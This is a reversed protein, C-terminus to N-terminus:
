KLVAVRDYFMRSIGFYHNIIDVACVEGSQREASDRGRTQAQFSGPKSKCCFCARDVFSKIEPSWWFFIDTNRHYHRQGAM